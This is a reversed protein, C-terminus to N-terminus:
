IPLLDAKLYDLEKTPKEPYNRWGPFGGWKFSRRLYQVFTEGKGKYIGDIRGNPVDVGEYSGGEVETIPFLVTETLEELSDFYELSRLLPDVSLADTEIWQWTGAVRLERRFCNLTRHDGALYISGVQEYWATISLPLLGVLDEIRTLDDQITAAPPVFVEQRPFLFEYGLKELRGVIIEVNHRARKMTEDAVAKAAPVQEDDLEGLAYLEDWVAEHNGQCYRQLPSLM